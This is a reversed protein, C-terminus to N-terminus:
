TVYGGRLQMLLKALTLKSAENHLSGKCNDRIYCLKIQTEWATSCFNQLCIDPEFILKKSEGLKFKLKTAM